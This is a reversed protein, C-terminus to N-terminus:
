SCSGDSDAGPVIFPAPTETGPTARLGVFLHDIAGALAAREAPALQAILQGLRQLPDQAMLATGTLTLALRTVRRDKTDPTGRVLEKRVLSAVARSAPGLTIGLYRSVGVVTAADPNARALFRLTAWQGPHMDQPSREPYVLRILQELLLASAMAARDTPPTERAIATDLHQVKLSM